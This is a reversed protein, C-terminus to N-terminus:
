FLMVEGSIIKKTVETIRKLREKAIAEAERKIDVSLREGEIMNIKINAMHPQDIPKGIQSLLSVYVTAVGRDKLSEYIQQAIESAVVNYVKGVHSVPNKGATAEMSMPRFPTILGNVRNGRGTAGDDGHEASTGTVTLYVIEKEIIDGTNVFVKVDYGPALREALKMVEEKVQEKVAAYEGIDKILSGIMAAGITLSIEGNRRLGMVKIDEGVMPYRQKMERSNLFRETELVLRELPSLPAFSLGVSTDNSLPVESEAEVISKLDVSGKGVKYDVIVHIEPDLFRFNRQIWKKAADVILSGFPIPVTGSPTSVETTLRGSVLVYIPQLVAGGGFRPASQGGVLLVKDVNHHLVRGFNEQYYRSLWVSAAEAVADCIYDPHGLGKREVIEVELDEVNPFRSEEVVISM